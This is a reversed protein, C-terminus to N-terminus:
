RLAFTFWRSITSLLTPSSPDDGPKSGRVDIYEIDRGGGPGRPLLPIPGEPMDPDGGISWNNDSLRAEATSPRLLPVASLALVLALFLLRRDFRRVVDIRPTM